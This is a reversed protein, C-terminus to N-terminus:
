RPWTAAEANSPALTVSVLGRAMVIPSVTSFRIRSIPGVTASSAPVAKTFRSLWGATPPWAATAVVRALKM